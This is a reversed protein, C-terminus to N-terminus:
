NDPELIQVETSGILLERMEQVSNMDDGDLLTPEELMRGRSDSLHAMQGIMSLFGDGEWVKSKKGPRHRGYIVAYRKALDSKIDITKMRKNEKPQDALLDDSLGQPKARSKLNSVRASENFIRADASPDRNFWGWFEEHSIYFPEM